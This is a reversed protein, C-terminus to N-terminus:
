GLQFTTEQKYIRQDGVDYLYAQERYQAAPDGHLLRFPLNARGLTSRFLGRHSDTALNGAPGYGYSRNAATAAGTAMGHLHALRNTGPQYHYSNYLSGVAAPAAPDPNGARQLGRINGARDMTWRGDGVTYAPDDPDAIGLTRDGVVAD